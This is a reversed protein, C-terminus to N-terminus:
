NFLKKKSLTTSLIVYVLEHRELVSESQFVKEKSFFIRRGLKPQIPSHRVLYVALMRNFM